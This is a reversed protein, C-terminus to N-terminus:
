GRRFVGDLKSWEWVGRVSWIGHFGSKPSPNPPNIAVTIPVTSRASPLIVSAVVVALLVIVILKQGLRVSVGTKGEMGTVEFDFLWNGM